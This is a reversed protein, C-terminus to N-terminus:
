ENTGINCRQILAMQRVQYFERDQKLSWYTLVAFLASLLVAALCSPNSKMAEAIGSVIKGATQM